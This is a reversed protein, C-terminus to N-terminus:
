KREKILINMVNLSFIKRAEKSFKYVDISSGLAENVDINKSIKILKGAKAVVKM